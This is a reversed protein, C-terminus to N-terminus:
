CIFVFNCIAATMVKKHYDRGLNIEQDESMMVFDKKGSVPNTSCASVLLYLAALGTYFLKNNSM